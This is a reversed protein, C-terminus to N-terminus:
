ENRSMAGAQYNHRRVHAHGSIRLEPIDAIEKPRKKPLVSIVKNWGTVGISIVFERDGDGLASM